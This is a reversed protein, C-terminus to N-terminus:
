TSGYRRFYERDGILEIPNGDDELWRVDAISPEDIAVSEGLVQRAIHGIARYTFYVETPPIHECWILYRGDTVLGQLICEMQDQYSLPSLSLM